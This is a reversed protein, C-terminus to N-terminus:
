AEFDYGMMWEDNDPVWHSPKVTAGLTRAAADAEDRKASPVYANVIAEDADALYTVEDAGLTELQAALTSAQQELDAM